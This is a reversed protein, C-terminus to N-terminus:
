PKPLAAALADKSAAIATTADTIAQVQAATSGGSGLAKVALDVQTGLEVATSTLLTIADDMAAMHKAELKPVAGRRKKGSLAHKLKEAAMWISLHVELIRDIRRREAPDHRHEKKVM